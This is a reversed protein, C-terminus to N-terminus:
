GGGAPTTHNDRLVCYLLETEDSEWLDIGGGVHECLNQTILSRWITMGSQYSFIGGGDWGSFNERISCRIIWAHSGKLYLGGGEAIAVNEAVICEILQLDYGECRIGGGQGNSGNQLTFGSVVAPIDSLPSALSIVSGATGGDITTVHPGLESRLRLSKGLFDLNEPYTGPRVIITDVLGVMPDAIALQITPFDDPVYWTAQALGVSPAGLLLALAALTRM